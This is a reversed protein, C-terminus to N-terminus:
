HTRKGREGCQPLHPTLSMAMTPDQPLSHFAKICPVSIHETSNAAEM